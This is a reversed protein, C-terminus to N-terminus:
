VAVCQGIFDVIEILLHQFQASPAGLTRHLWKISQAIRGHSAHFQVHVTCVCM